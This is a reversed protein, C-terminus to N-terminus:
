VWAFLSCVAQQRYCEQWTSSCDRDWCCPPCLNMFILLPNSMMPMTSAIIPNPAANTMLVIMEGGVLRINAARSSMGAPVISLSRGSSANTCTGTVNGFWDARITSSDMKSGSSSARIFCTLPTKMASTCLNSGISSEEITLASFGAETRM